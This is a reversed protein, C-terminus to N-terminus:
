YFFLYFLYYIQSICKLGFLHWPKVGVGKWTIFSVYKFSWFCRHDHPYGWSKDLEWWSFEWTVQILSKNFHFSYCRVHPAEWYLGILIVRGNFIHRALNLIIVGPWTATRLIQCSLLVLVWYGPGVFSPKRGDPFFFPMQRTRKKSTIPKPSIVRLEIEWLKGGM